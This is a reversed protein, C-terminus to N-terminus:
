DVPDLLVAARIRIYEPFKEPDGYTFSDRKLMHATNNNVFLYYHGEDMNGNKLTIYHFENKGSVEDEEEFRDKYFTYTLELGKNPYRKWSRREMARNNSRRLLAVGGLISLVCVLLGSPDLLGALPISIGTLVLFFGLIPFGLRRALRIGGDPHRRYDLTRVLAAVDERTYVMKIQYDMPLPKKEPGSQEEAEPATEEAVPETEPEQEQETEELEDEELEVELDATKPADERRVPVAEYATQKKRKLLM